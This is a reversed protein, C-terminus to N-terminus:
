NNNCSASRSLSFSSMWRWNNWADTAVLAMKQGGITVMGYIAPIYIKTSRKIGLKKLIIPYQSLAARWEAGAVAINILDDSLMNYTRNLFCLLRANELVINKNKVLRVIEYNNTIFYIGGKISRVFVNKKLGENLFSQILADEVSEYDCCDLNVSRNIQVIRLEERLVTPCRGLAIRLEM